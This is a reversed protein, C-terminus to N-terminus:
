IELPDKLIVISLDGQYGMEVELKTDDAEAVADGATSLLQWGDVFSINAYVLFMPEYGLNHHVTYTAFGGPMSFTKVMHVMPTRTGSHVAFDRIDESYVSKGPLSVKIGWDRNIRGDVISDDLNVSPATYDETLSISTVMVRGTAQLSPQGTNAVFIKNNDTVVRGEFTHNLSANGLSTGQFRQTTYPLFVPPFDLNHNYITGGENVFSFSEEHIITLLKWSSSFIMKQDPGLVNEGPQSVKMGWDAM